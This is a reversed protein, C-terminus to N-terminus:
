FPPPDNSRHVRGTPSTWEIGRADQTISWGTLHKMRHHRRCLSALNLASTTGGDAWAITHDLDCAAARRGCGVFVCTRDRVRLWRKLAKPVRYTKRDVDLVAGTIPDTLIRELSPARAALRRATEADIPIGGELEGPEDSRGLLTLVPVTVAVSVKVDAGPFGCGTLLDVAADARVQDLTRSEGPAAALHRATGDLTAMVRAAAEDAILMSLWTMGDRYPEVAVRREDLARRHRGVLPETRLREVIASAKTRFRAPALRAILLIRADLEYWAEEPLDRVRDAIMRANAASIGGEAFVQWVRPLSRILTEAQDALIRVTGEAIALRTALDAVAASEAWDRADAASLLVDGLFVEPHQRAEGLVASILRMQQATLRAISETVIEAEALGFEIRVDAHVPDLLRITDAM